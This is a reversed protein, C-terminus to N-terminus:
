PLKTRSDNTQVQGFMAGPGPRASAVFKGEITEESAEWSVGWFYVDQVAAAAACYAKVSGYQSLSFM